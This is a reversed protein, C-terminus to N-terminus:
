VWPLPDCPSGRAGVKKKKKKKFLFFFNLINEDNEITGNPNSVL